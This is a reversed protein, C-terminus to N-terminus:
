RKKFFGGLLGGKEDGKPIVEGRVEAFERILKAETDNLKTPIKVNVQVILDGRRGGHLPPLGGSKIAIHSNPQTGAPITLEVTDDVGEIEVRDGLAAQAFTAELLTYLTQGRREFRNDNAVHLVVYLDGPRGGGVGDSGQGPVHLTAGDEFGPPINVPIKITEPVVAKGRCKKCPDKVVV